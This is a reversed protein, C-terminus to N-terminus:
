KEVESDWPMLSSIKSNRFVYLSFKVCLLQGTFRIFSARTHEGAHISDSIGLAAKAKSSHSAWKQGDSIQLKKILFSHSFSCIHGLTVM